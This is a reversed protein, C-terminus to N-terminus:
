GGLRLDGFAAGDDCGDLVVGVEEFAVVVLPLFDAVEHLTEGAEVVVLTAVYDEVFVGGGWLAFQVGCHSGDGDGELEALGSGREEAFGNEGGVFLPSLM